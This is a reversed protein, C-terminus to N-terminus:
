GALERLFYRMRSEIDTCDAPLTKAIERVRDRDYGMGVLTSIIEPAIELSPQRSRARELEELSFSNHLELLIKVATKKGVGPINALLKEDSRETASLLTDVGLGLVSLATRGGVGPVKLLRRFVSEEAATEFGYLAELTESRHHYLSLEVSDGVSRSSLLRATAFVEVGLGLGDPMIVCSQADMSAIHGRIYKWM